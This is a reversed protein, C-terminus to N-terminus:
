YHIRHLFLGCAAASKGALNRNKGEIISKWNEPQVKGLGTALMTGVVARVMNRLFRNASITFVWQEGLNEWYAETVSCFNHTTDSGSKSFSTFDQEGLLYATAEQMAEFNLPKPVFASIDNLFPSKTFHLYYKYTRLKADFRANFNDSVLEITNFAISQPLIANVKYVTKEATYPLKDADFHLFFQSAHVGTDTRGCGITNVASGFAVGLAHEVFNQVALGNNQKQWGQYPGGNFAIEAIYRAM